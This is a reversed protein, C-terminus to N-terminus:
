QKIFKKSSVNENEFYVKSVYIGKSLDRVDIKNSNDTMVKQGLLNYIEVKHISNESKVYLENNVPSPFLVLSKDNMQIDEVSLLATNTFYIRDIILNGSTTVDNPYNGPEDIQIQENRILVRFDFTTGYWSASTINKLDIQTTEFDPATMNLTPTFNVGYLNGYNNHVSRFQFRMQDNASENRYVINVYDYSDANLQYSFQDMQVVEDNTPTAPLTIDLVGGSVSYADEIGNLIWGDTNSDVLFDYDDKEPRPEFPLFEVKHIEVVEPDGGNTNNRLAIEFFQEGSNPTNTNDGTINNWNSNSLNIYYTQLSADGNAIPVNRNINGSADDRKFTARIEVPGEPDSNRLTIAIVKNLDGNVNIASHELVITNKATLSFSVNDSNLTYSANSAWGDLTNNFEWPGQSFSLSSIFITILLTIKKM